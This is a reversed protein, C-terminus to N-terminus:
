CRAAPACSRCRAAPCRRRRSPSPSASASRHRHLHDAREPRADHDDGHRDGLRTGSTPLNLTGGADAAIDYVTFSATGTSVGTPDVVLTYTGTTPVDLADVFGTPPATPRRWASSRARRAEAAAASVTAFTSGAMKVSVKHGAVAPFTIGGNVGPSSTTVTQTGPLSAITVPAPDSLGLDYVTVTISGANIGSPDVLVTYTASAPSSPLPTSDIFSDAKGISTATMPAGNSDLLMGTGGNITSASFRVFMRRNAARHLHRPREHRADVLNLTTSGGAASAMVSSTVDVPVSSATLSLSGSFTPDPTIQLSYTGIATLLSADIYNTGTGATSAVVYGGTPNRVQISMSGITSNTWRFSIRQNVVTTDFLYIAADGSPIAISAATGLTLRGSVIDGAAYGSPLVIFDTSTLVTGYPTTVYLKGPTAAAPVTVTLSTTTAATVTGAVGATGNFLM